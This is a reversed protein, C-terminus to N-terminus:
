LEPPLAPRLPRVESQSLSSPRHSHGSAEQAPERKRKPQTIERGTEGTFVSTMPNLAWGLLGPRVCRSIRLKTVDALSKKGFLTVNVPETPTPPLSWEVWWARRCGGLAM